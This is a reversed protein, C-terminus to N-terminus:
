LFIMAFNTWLVHSPSFPLNLCPSPHSHSWLPGPPPALPFPLHPLPPYCLPASHLFAARCLNFLFGFVVRLLLARASIRFRM